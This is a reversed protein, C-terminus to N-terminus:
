FLKKRSGNAGNGNAFADFMGMDNDSDAVCMAELQEMEREMLLLAKELSSFRNRFSVYKDLFDQGKNTLRYEDNDASLFGMSLSKGLYKNLLAFSLNATYMIKTKRAGQRSAALVDALIEIKRRYKVM